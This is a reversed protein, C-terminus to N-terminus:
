ILEIRTLFVIRMQYHEIRFNYLIIKNIRIPVFGKHGGEVRALFHFRIQDFWLLVWEMEIAPGRM